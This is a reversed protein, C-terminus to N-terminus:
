GSTAHLSAAETQVAAPAALVNLLSLLSVFMTRFADAGVVQTFSGGPTTVFAV